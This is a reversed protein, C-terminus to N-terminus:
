ACPSRRARLTRWILVLNPPRHIPILRSIRPIHAVVRAARALRYRVAAMARHCFDAGDVFSLCRGVASVVALAVTWGALTVTAFTALFTLKAVTLFLAEDQGIGLIIWSTITLVSFIVSWTMWVWKGM